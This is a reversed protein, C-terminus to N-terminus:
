PSEFGILDEDVHLEVTENPEPREPIEDDSTGSYGFWSHITPPCVNDTPDEEDDEEATAVGSM